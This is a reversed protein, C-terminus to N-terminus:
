RKDIHGSVAMSTFQYLALKDGANKNLLSCMYLHFSVVKRIYCMCFNDKRFIVFKTNLLYPKYM